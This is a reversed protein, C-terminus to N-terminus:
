LNGTYKAIKQAILELKATKRFKEGAIQLGHFRVNLIDRKKSRERLEV